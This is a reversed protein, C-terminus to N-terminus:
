KGSEKFGKLIVKQTQEMDDYIAMHGAEYEFLTSNPILRDLARGIEISFQDDHKGWILITPTMINQLDNKSFIKSSGNNTIIDIVVSLKTYDGNPIAEEPISLAVQAVNNKISKPILSTNFIFSLFPKGISLLVDQYFSSSELRVAPDSLVLLSIKNPHEIAYSLGIRGGFSQGMMVPKEIKLENLFGDIYSAYDTTNWVFTPLESKSAGPHLPLYLYFDRSLATIIQEKRCQSMKKSGGTGHLFVLPPNQPDGATLYYVTLDKIKVSSEKISAPNKVRTCGAIYPYLPKLFFYLLVILIGLFIYRFKLFSRIRTSLSIIKKSM